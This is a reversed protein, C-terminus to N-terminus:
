DRRVCRVACTGTKVNNGTLGSYLSVRWARDPRNSHETSSWYNSTTAFSSSTNNYIEDIYAQQLEKQTPLYWDTEPTGDDNADLSLSGCTHIAVGCSEATGDYNGRDSSTFFDCSSHDQDPFENTVGSAQKASWFLGTRTDQWVEQEGSNSNTQIWTSGEGCATEEGASDECGDGNEFDDFEQFSQQSYDVFEASGTLQTRTGDAYFNKGSRVDQAAAADGGDSSGDPTWEAASRIRNWYTGWDGWSGSGESGHSLSVLADYTAKIRSDVGSEPTSGSQEAWVTVGFGLSLGFLILIISIIVKKSQNSKSPRNLGFM